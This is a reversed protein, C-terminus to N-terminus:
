KGGMNALLEAAYRAAAIQRDIEEIQRQYTRIDAECNSITNLYSQLKSKMLFLLSTYSAGVVKTGIGSLVMSMGKNYESATRCNDLYKVDDLIAMKGSNISNFGGQSEEVVQKFLRLSEYAEESKKITNKRDSIKIQLASKRNELLQILDSM